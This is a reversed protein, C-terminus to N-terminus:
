YAWGVMRERERERGGGWVCRETQIDKEIEKEGEQVCEKLVCVCRETQIDTKCVCVCVCVYTRTCASQACKLRHKCLEIFGM